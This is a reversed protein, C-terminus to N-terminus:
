RYSDVQLYKLSMKNINLVKKLAFVNVNFLSYKIVFFM